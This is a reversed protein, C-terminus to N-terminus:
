IHPKDVLPLEEKPTAKIVPRMSMGGTNSGKNNEKM